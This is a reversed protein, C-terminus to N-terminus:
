IITSIGSYVGIKFEYKLIINWFNFYIKPDYESFILYIKSYTGQISLYKQM